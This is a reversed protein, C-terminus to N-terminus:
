FLFILQGMTKIEFKIFVPETSRNRMPWVGSFHACIKKLNSRFNALMQTIKVQGRYSQLDYFLYIDAVHSMHQFPMM